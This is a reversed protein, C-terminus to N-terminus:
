QRKELSYGFGRRSTIDYDSGIDLLKKRLQSIYVWLTNMSVESEYGWVKELIRDPPIRAERNLLLLELVLYELRSLGCDGTPGSLRAMGPDLRSNGFEMIEPVYTDRRRLMARIRALLEKMAFPKSLYDDAGLDLGTVRDDLAGRATLLLVPTPNGSARLEKLVELGSKGPMMIDLVIGDYNEVSAYALADIGNDVVDVNFRHHTLIDVVADSLAKEDEAYLLKM